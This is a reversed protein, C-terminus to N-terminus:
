VILNYDIDYGSGRLEKAIELKWGAIMDIYVVGAIDNPVEVIDKKLAAVKERGIKGILFGHEFVVNQRARSQLENGKKAGIDCPTYLVIGFGVNSYKEIKEIITKGGSAQEHLIIPSLGLKEIFRALETKALDDHGHVIFVKTKDIETKEIDITESYDFKPFSSEVQGNTDGINEVRGKVFSYGDRELLKILQKWKIDTKSIPNEESEIKFLEIVNFLKRSEKSKTLDLSSVYCDALSRRDGTLYPQYLENQFIDESEFLIKIKSITSYTSLLDYFTYKTRNSIM